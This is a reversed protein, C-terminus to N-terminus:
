RSGCANAFCDSSPAEIFREVKHSTAEAKARAAQLM